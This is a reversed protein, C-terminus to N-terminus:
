TLYEQLQNPMADVMYRVVTELPVTQGELFWKVTMTSASHLYMQIQFNLFEDDAMEPAQQHIYSKLLGLSHNVMADMYGIPASTDLFVKRYFTEHQMMVEILQVMLETWSLEVGLKGYTEDLHRIFVWQILDYKDTFNNYFTRSSVGCNDTINAITIKEIEMTYALEMISEALLEKTTLRRIM